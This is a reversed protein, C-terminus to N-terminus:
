PFDVKPTTADDALRECGMTDVPATVRSRMEMVADYMEEWNEPAEVKVNAKKDRPKRQAAAQKKEKKILAPVIDGLSPTPERKVAEVVDKPQKKWPEPEPLPSRFHSSVIPRSEASSSDDDDTLGLYSPPSSLGSSSDDDNGVGGGGGSRTQM